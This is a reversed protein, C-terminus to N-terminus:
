MVCTITWFKLAPPWRQSPTKLSEPTSTLSYILFNDINNNSNLLDINADFKQLSSETKVPDFTLTFHKITDMSQNIISTNKPSKTLLKNEDNNFAFEQMAENFKSNRMAEIGM